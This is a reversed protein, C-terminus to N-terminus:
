CHALAVTVDRAAIAGTEIAGDIGGVGVPAIDGGAFHIRGHPERMLPAAGTLHGPRHHAWGGQAFEDAVWDHGATDVVEIDPVFTRLAAQVSERDEAHIAAADSAFCVVLTDGEHRYEVRATNIPNKGVPAFAGFPEIEGRVRAWIKASRMPHKQDIMARVPRPVDPSIMVDSLTNLPLAVVASSARIREGARTTVVVGSGDDEVARVPTSLRLEAKSEAAMAALLRATGGEIPWVGATEVFASWDGFTTAAWFLLQALGQERHSHIFTSLMGDLVDRDHESLDLADFRDQLTEQEIAGTDVAGLQPPLPFHLRADAFYRAMLPAAISEFDRQTGSHVVGDALWHMRDLELPVALGIGYRQLERWVNPQTWHVYTGGFEVPRGFAEGRYTRGGIRDRAELLVVSHGELSLDRAATMGAFGAGIVVVDCGNAM